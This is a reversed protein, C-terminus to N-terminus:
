SLRWARRCLIASNRLCSITREGPSTRLVRKAQALMMKHLSNEEVWVGWACMCLREHVLLAARSPPSMIKHAAMSTTACAHWLRARVSGCSWARSLTTLNTRMPQM